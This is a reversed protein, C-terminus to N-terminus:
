IDREARCHQEIFQQHTMAQQAASKMSNKMQALNREVVDLPINKARIDFRQTNIDFGTFM